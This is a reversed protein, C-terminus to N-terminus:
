TPCPEHPNPHLEGGTLPTGSLRNLTRRRIPNKRVKKFDGQDSPLSMKPCM